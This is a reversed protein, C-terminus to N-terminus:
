IIFERGTRKPFYLSLLGDVPSSTVARFPTLSKIFKILLAYPNCIYLNLINMFDEIFFRIDMETINLGLFERCIIM